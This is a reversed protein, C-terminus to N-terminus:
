KMALAFVFLLFSLSGIFTRVAHWRGWRTLLLAAEEPNKEADVKLLKLNIPVILFGTLPFMGALLLAGWLWEYGRGDFWAYAAAIAGVLAFIILMPAARASMPRFFQTAFSLGLRSAAPQEVISIYLCGGAWLGAFLTAVFEPM